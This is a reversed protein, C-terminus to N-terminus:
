GSASRSAAEALAAHWRRAVGLWVAAPEVGAAEAYDRVRQDPDDPWDVRGREFAWFSVHDAGVERAVARSSKLGAKFRVAILEDRLAQGLRDM